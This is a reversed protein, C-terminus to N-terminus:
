PPGSGCGSTCRRIGAPSSPTSGTASSWGTSDWRPPSSAAGLERWFGPKDGGGKLLLSAMRFLAEGVFSGGIGTMIHDNLSPPTTEGGTEWLFSGMLTYLLSEWYNLGASRAFGYYVSGQYPHGIQNVSFPDKDIVVSGTLNKWFTHADTGYEDEDVLHRNFQNMAFVFGGVELAPILYNLYNKGAGWARERAAPLDEEARALDPALIGLALVGVVLVRQTAVARSLWM